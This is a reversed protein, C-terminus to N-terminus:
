KEIYRQIKKTVNEVSDVNNFYEMSEGYKSYTTPFVRRIFKPRKESKEKLEELYKERQDPTM